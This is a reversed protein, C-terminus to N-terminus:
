FRVCHWRVRVYPTEEETTPSGCLLKHFKKTKAAPIPLYTRSALIALGLANAYVMYAKPILLCLIYSKLVRERPLLLTSYMPFIIAVYGVAIQMVGNPKEYLTVFTKKM